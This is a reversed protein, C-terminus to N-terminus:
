RALVIKRAEEHGPLDLRVFYVGAPLSRGAGDRGDWRVMHRGSPMTGQALIAVKRGSVDYVGVELRAAHPIAYAIETAVTFPNPVSAGLYGAAPPAQAVEIGTTASMRVDAETVANDPAWLWRSHPFYPSDTAVRLRWHYLGGPNLGSAGITLPVTSGGTGPAGSMALAGSVVGSGDFLVNSLKVEHQIRVRGRGGPTRGLTKLLFATPSSSRGLIAIPASDDAQAMRPIRPLGDSANGYSWIRGQDTQANDFGPEGIVVDAFGDGDVDGAGSVSAGFRSASLDIGEAWAPSLEIGSASGNFVVAGCNEGGGEAGGQPPAFNQYFYVDAGAILDSYGDQNLDGAPNLAQGFHGNISNGDLITPTPPIGTATGLFVYVRGRPSAQLVYDKAGVAFDSFGDGNMDGATSVAGGFGANAQHSEGTWVPTTAPGGASSLYLFARGEATEGNTFAPAGVLVDTFGNRNVDGASAVASGFLSGAQNSEATWLPTTALGAGSGAYMFARGEDLQGNDFRPAGVLVDAFGDGNVDGAAAVV